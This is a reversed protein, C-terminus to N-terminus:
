LHAKEGIRYPELKPVAGTEEYRRQVDERYEQFSPHCAVCHASPAAIITTCSCGFEVKQALESM